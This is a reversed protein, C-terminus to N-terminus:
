FALREGCTSCSGHSLVPKPTPAHQLIVNSFHWAALPQWLACSLAGLRGLMATRRAAEMLIGARLSSWSHGSGDLLWGLSSHLLGAGRSSISNTASAKPDAPLSRLCGATNTPRPWLSSSAWWWPPAWFLGALASTSATLSRSFRHWWTYRFTMLLTGLTGSVDELTRTLMRSSSCTPGGITSATKAEALHTLAIVAAPGPQM